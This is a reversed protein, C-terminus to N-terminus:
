KWLYLLETGKNEQMKKWILCHFRTTNSDGLRLTELIKLCFLLTGASLHRWSWSMWLGKKPEKSTSLPQSEQPHAPGQIWGYEKVAKDRCDVM